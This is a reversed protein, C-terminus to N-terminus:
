DHKLDTEIEQGEKRKNRIQLLHNIEDIEKNARFIKISVSFFYVIVSIIILMWVPFDAYWDFVAGFLLVVVTIFGIDLITEILISKSEMRSILFLGTHIVINVGLTQFISSFFLACGGMVAGIATLLLISVGTTAMINSIIKKM